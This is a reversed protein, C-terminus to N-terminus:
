NKTIDPKTNQVNQKLLNFQKILKNELKLTMGLIGKGVKFM